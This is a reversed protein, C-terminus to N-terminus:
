QIRSNVNAAIKKSQTTEINILGLIVLYSKHQWDAVYFSQNAIAIILVVANKGLGTDAGKIVGTASSSITSQSFGFISETTYGATASAEDKFQIVFNVVLPFNASGLDTNNSSQITACHAKTDSYFVVYAATAGHTKASDWESKTSQYTTPDKTKVANLFTDIDGSGDCKIMGKPLDSAKVAVDAPGSAAASNNPGCAAFLLLAVLAMWRRVLVPYRAQM